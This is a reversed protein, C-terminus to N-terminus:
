LAAKYGRDGARELVALGKERDAEISLFRDPELRLDAVGGLIPFARGCGACRYSTKDGDLHAACAPCILDLGASLGPGGAVRPM